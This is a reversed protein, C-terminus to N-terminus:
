KNILLLVPVRKVEWKQSCQANDLNRFAVSTVNKGIVNVTEKSADITAEGGKITYGASCCANGMRKRALTGARNLGFLQVPEM